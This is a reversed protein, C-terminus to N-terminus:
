LMQAIIKKTEEPGTVQICDIGTSKAPFDNGGHFLADGIFLMHELSIRLTDELKRIGYAKNVGKMTIDISTSGGIRVDFRPIKSSLIEAIQQRKERKPDWAEKLALPAAQGLASFTIQSGRDEILAGYTKEPRDIGAISIALELKEIIDKRDIEPIDEAYQQHWTGRWVYLRTGSTPLLFLNTLPQMDVPLRNLIQTEFQQFGGGSIVAIKKKLILSALLKVMAEDVASKSPALTGDLDFIILEKKTYDHM